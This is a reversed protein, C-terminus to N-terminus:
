SPRMMARRVTRAYVKAGKPTTHVGDVLQGPRRSAAHWDALVVNRHHRAADRLADNVSREWKLPVRVTVLVVRPTSALRKLLSELSRFPVYGNNGLHIVITRPRVRRRGALVAGAGAAFQRSVRADITAGPIAARVAPAAGLMVSDGVALVPAAAATM